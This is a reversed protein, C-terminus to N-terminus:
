ESLQGRLEGDPHEESHVNVYYNEPHDMMDTISGADAKVCGYADGDENPLPLALAVPGSSGKAGKHIHADTAPLTIGSVEVDVCVLGEDKLLRVNATGEGDSDVAPVEEDGSLTIEFEDLSEESDEDNNSDEEDSEDDWDSNQGHDLKDGHWSAVLESAQEKSLTSLDVSGNLDLPLVIPDGEFEWTTKGNETNKESLQYGKAYAPTITMLLGLLVAGGAIVKKSKM